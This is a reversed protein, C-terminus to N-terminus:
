KVYRLVLNMAISLVFFVVVLVRTTNSLKAELTKGQNKSLYSDTQGTLASMGGPQKSEQLMFLVVMLISSLALLIGGVIELANM